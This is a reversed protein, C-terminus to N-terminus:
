FFCPCLPPLCSWAYSSGLTRLKFLSLLLCRLHVWKSCTCCQVSRGALDCNWCVSFPSLHSWFQSSRQQEDLTPSSPPCSLPLLLSFVPSRNQLLQTSSKQLVNLLCYPLFITTCPSHRPYSPGKPLGVAMKVWGLLPQPPQQHLVSTSRQCPDADHMYSKNPWLQQYILHQDQCAQLQEM